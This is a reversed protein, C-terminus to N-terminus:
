SKSITYLNQLLVLGSLFLFSSDCQWRATKAGNRIAAEFVVHRQKVLSEQHGSGISSSYRGPVQMTLQDSSMMERSKNRRGAASAPDVQEAGKKLQPQEQSRPLKGANVYYYAPVTTTIAAELQGVLTTASSSSHATNGVKFVVKM